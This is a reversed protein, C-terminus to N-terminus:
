LEDVQFQISIAGRNRSHSLEFKAGAPSPVWLSEELYNVIKKLFLLHTDDEDHQALFVNAKLHPINVAIEPFGIATNGEIDNGAYVGWLSQESTSTSSIALYLGCDQASSAFVSSMLVIFVRM